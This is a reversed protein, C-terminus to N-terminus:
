ALRELVKLDDGHKAMYATQAVAMANDAPVFKSIENKKRDSSWEYFVAYKEYERKFVKFTKGPTLRPVSPERVYFQFPDNLQM